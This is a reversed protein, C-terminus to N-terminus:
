DNTTHCAFATHVSALDVRRTRNALIRFLLPGLTFVAKSSALKPHHDIFHAATSSTILQTNECAASDAPTCKKVPSRYLGIGIRLRYLTMRQKRNLYKGQRRRRPGIHASTCTPDLHKESTNVPLPLGQVSLGTRPSSM